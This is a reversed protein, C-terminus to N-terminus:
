TSSSTGPNLKPLHEAAAAFLTRLAPDELQAESTVKLHRLLKGTGELRNSPDAFEIGYYFGLNIYREFIAIYAFHESMKKPGAGYSIIRQKPWAVEVVEPMVELILGRARKALTQVHADSAAIIVEFDDSM